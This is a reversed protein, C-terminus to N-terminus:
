DLDDDNNFFMYEGGSTMESNLKLRPYSYLYPDEEPTADKTWIAPDFGTPLASTDRLELTTLPVAGDKVTDPHDTKTSDYYVHTIGSAGSVSYGIIYPSGGSGVRAVLAGSVLVNDIAGHGDDINECIGDPADAAIDAAMVCDTMTGSLFECFGNTHGTVGVKGALSGTVTMRSLTGSVTDFISAFSLGDQVLNVDITYGQGNYTGSFDGILLTTVTDALDQTQVYDGNLPYGVDVGIKALDAASTIPIAM